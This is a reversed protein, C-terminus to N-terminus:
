IGMAAAVAKSAEDDDSEIYAGTSSISKHGLYQRVNEIGAQKITHKAITHKMAHPHCKHQPVKAEAGYKRVIMWFWVRSWPFLRDTKNLRACRDELASKEDLLCDNHAILPQTTEKSGKLRKVTIFGDAFNQPTLTMVESARLGHWYAVLIMLWHDENHSKAVGLLRILEDKTLHVM